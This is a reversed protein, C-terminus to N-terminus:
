NLFQSVSSAYATYGEDRNRQSAGLLACACSVFLASAPALASVVRREGHTSQPNVRQCAIMSRQSQLISYIGDHTDCM